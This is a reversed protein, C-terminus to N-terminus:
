SVIIIPTDALDTLLGTRVPSSTPYTVIQFNMRSQKWLDTDDTRYDWRIQYLSPNQGIPIIWDVWYKGDVTTSTEPTLHYQDSLSIWDHDYYQYISYRVELNTLPVGERDRFIIRLDNEDLEQGPQYIISM